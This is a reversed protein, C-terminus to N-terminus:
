LCNHLCFRTVNRFIGESLQHSVSLDIFEGRLPLLPSLLQRQRKTRSLSTIEDFM